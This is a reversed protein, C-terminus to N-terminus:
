YHNLAWTKLDAVQYFHHDSIKVLDSVIFQYDIKEMFEAIELDIEPYKKQYLSIM